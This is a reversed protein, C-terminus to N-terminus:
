CFFLAGKQVMSGAAAEAQMPNARRSPKGPDNGSM